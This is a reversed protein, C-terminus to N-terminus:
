SVPLKLTNNKSAKHDFFTNMIKLNNREAFRVLMDGRDNGTELAFNGLSTM